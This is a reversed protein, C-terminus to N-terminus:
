TTSSPRAPACRTHCGIAATAAALLLMIPVVLALATGLGTKLNDVNESVAGVALPGLGLGFMNVLFVALGHQIGRMSPPTIDQLAAPGSDLAVAILGILITLLMIAAASGAAIFAAWATPAAILMVASLLTLRGNGNNLSALRDGALGGAFTGVCGGVLVANGLAFTADGLPLGHMRTLWIVGWGLVAHVAMASFLLAGDIALIERAHRQFYALTAAWDHASSAEPVSADSQRQPEPWWLVIFAISM